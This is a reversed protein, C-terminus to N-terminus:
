GSLVAPFVGLQKTGAVSNHCLYQLMPDPKTVSIKKVNGVAEHLSCFKRICPDRADPRKASFEGLLAHQEDDFDSLELLEQELLTEWVVALLRVGDDGKWRAFVRNPPLRERGFKQKM